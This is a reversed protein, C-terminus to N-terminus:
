IDPGTKKPKMHQQHIEKAAAPIQKAGLAEAMPSMTPELPPLPKYAGQSQLYKAQLNLQPLSMGRQDEIDLDQRPELYSGAHGGAFKGEEHQGYDNAINNLVFPLGLDGMRRFFRDNFSESDPDFPTIPLDSM